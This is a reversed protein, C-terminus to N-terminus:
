WDWWICKIRRTHLYDCIRELAVESRERDDGFTFRIGYPLVNWFSKQRYKPAFSGLHTLPYTRDNIVIEQDLTKQLLQEHERTQKRISTAM